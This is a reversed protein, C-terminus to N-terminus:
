MSFDNRSSSYSSSITKSSIYFSIRSNSKLKIRLINKTILTRINNITRHNSIKHISNITSFHRNISFTFKRRFSKNLITIFLETNIRFFFTILIIKTINKKLLTTNISLNFYKTKETFKSILINRCFISFIQNINTQKITSTIRISTLIYKIRTHTLHIIDITSNSIKYISFGIIKRLIFIINIKSIVEHTNRRISRLIKNNSSSSIFSFSSLITIKEIYFITFFNILSNFSIKICFNRTFSTCVIFYFSRLKNIKSGIFLIILHNMIQSSFSNTTSLNHRKINKFTFIM